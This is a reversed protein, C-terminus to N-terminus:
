EERDAPLDAGWFGMVTAAGLAAILVLAALLVLAPLPVALLLTWGFTQKNIVHILLWGLLVSAALGALLGACATAVGELATSLAMGGRTVGLARLTTLDAQRDLLVSGLTLALGLVAVGVGIAELAYTISFTQRFIRLVETRLPANTFVQLGPFEALWRQRIKEALGPDRLKIIVSLAAEDHFWALYRARDILVTGRENGFDAFVGVIPMTHLGDPTPLSLVGGRSVGFREVFAESVFAAEGKEPWPHPADGLWAISGQEHAFRFDVGLVRATGLPFTVEASHMVNVALVVPDSALRQWSEARLRNQSSANQAGSSSVYLDAQFTAAIWRQMTHEFSGVLIAMGATMAVACALSAAALRHRGSPPALHSAALRMMAEHRGAPRLMRGLVSLINGSLLGGAFLWAAAALYGGLALRVGGDLRLAPLMAAGYGLFALAAALEGHRTMRAGVNVAHYRLLLQAPPVRAANRAPFWGAALSAATALLLVWAFEIWDLQAADAANAFYLANVTRGVFRVAFQAGGWGLLAGLAGGLVGVLLSEVLWARRITHEDVGLSLLIAIEQRRRLVAGDLAQFILYLGVLLAILSLITLNLRFARTMVAGSERRDAGTEVLWRGHALESVIQVAEACREVRRPGSELFFEIRDIQGRRATLAQASPLDMVLLSKPAVPEGRQEPILGAIKLMVVRDDVVVRLEGGVREGLARSVFIANAGAGAGSWAERLPEPSADEERLNQIGILDLGVLRFSDGSGLETATGERVRTATTELVPIIHVPRAGLAVRLEPLINEPLRGTPASILFDSERSLVETFREFSRLVARNALRISFYVAVGLALITILLVAQGPGRRWHRLTFREFLLRLLGAESM